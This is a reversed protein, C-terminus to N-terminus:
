REAKRQRRLYYAAGLGALVMFIIMGWDSITPIATSAARLILWTYTGASYYAVLYNGINTNAVARAIDASTVIFFDGGTLVGISTLYQGYIAYGSRTDTWVVLYQNTGSNYVVSPYDQNNAATSVPFNSGSL